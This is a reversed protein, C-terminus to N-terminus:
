DICVVGIDDIKVPAVGGDSFVAGSQNSICHDGHHTANYAPAVNCLLTRHASVDRFWHTEFPWGRRMSAVSRPDVADFYAQANEPPGIEAYGAIVGCKEAIAAMHQRPTLCGALAFALASCTILLLGRTM